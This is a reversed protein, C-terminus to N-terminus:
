LGLGPLGMGSTIKSMEGDAKERAQTLAGQVAAVVMDELVEVDEPDVVDPKISIGELTGACSATATVMGGGATFEVTEGALQEQMEVMKRQMDAAQKMM